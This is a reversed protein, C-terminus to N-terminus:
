AGGEVCFENGELDAMVVWGGPTVGRRDDVIRAGLSELRAIEQVQSGDHPMLDLHVRNKSRKSEPVEVFVLHPSADGETGVWWFPNGPMEVKSRPWRTVESWFRAMSEADSCDFTM